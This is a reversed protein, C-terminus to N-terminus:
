RGRPQLAPRSVLAIAHARDRAGLKSLVNSVHHKVTRVTVVLKEAIESNSMGEAIRELVEWERETLVTDGRTVGPAPWSQRERILALLQGGIATNVWTGGQHATVIARVVDEIPDDRLVIGAVGAAVAALLEEDTIGDPALLVTPALEDRRTCRALDVLLEQVSERLSCDAVIVDPRTACWQHVLTTSTDAAATVDIAPSTDLLIRAGTRSAQNRIGLIV